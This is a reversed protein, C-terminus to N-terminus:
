NRSAPHPIDSESLNKYDPVQRGTPLTQYRTDPLKRLLYIIPLLFLVLGVVGTEEVLALVSNGKERVFREGEYHDGLSGPKINPDSMGYGLGTLGGNQAARYSPEWM